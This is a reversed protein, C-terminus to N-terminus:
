NSVHGSDVWARYIEYAGYVLAYIGAVITARKGWYDIKELRSAIEEQRHIAGSEIASLHVTDDELNAVMKRYLALGIVALVLFVLVLFFPSALISM